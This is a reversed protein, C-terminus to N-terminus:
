LRKRMASGIVARGGGGAGKGGLDLYNALLQLRIPPYNENVGFYTLFENENAMYLEYFVGGSINKNGM